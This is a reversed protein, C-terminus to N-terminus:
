GNCFSFFTKVARNGAHPVLHALHDSGIPVSIWGRSWFAQVIPDLMTFKAALVQRDPDSPLSQITGLDVSKVSGSVLVLSKAGEPLNAVPEGITVSGSHHGCALMLKVDGGGTAGYTLAADDGVPAFRWDLGKTAKPAGAAVVPGNALEGRHACAALLSAAALLLIARKM